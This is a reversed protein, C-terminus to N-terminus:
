RFASFGARMGRDVVFRFFINDAAAAEIAHFAVRPTAHLLTFHRIIM